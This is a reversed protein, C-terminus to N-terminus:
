GLVLVGSELLASLSEGALLVLGGGMLLIMGLNAMEDSSTLIQLALKLIIHDLLVSFIHFM